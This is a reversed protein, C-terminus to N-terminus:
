YTWPKELRQRTEPSIPNGTLNLYELYEPTSRTQFRVSKITRYNLHTVTKLREIQEPITNLLQHIATQLPPACFNLSCTEQIIHDLVVTDLKFHTSFSSQAHTKHSRFERATM